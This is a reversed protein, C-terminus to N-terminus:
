QAPVPQAIRREVPVDALQPYRGRLDAVAADYEDRVAYSVAVKDLLWDTGSITQRLEIDGIYVITGAPIELPAFRLNSSPQPISSTTTESTRDPYGILLGTYTTPVVSMALLGPSEYQWQSPRQSMSGFVRADAELPSLDEGPDDAVRLQVVLTNTIPGFGPEGNTIPVIRALVVGRTVELQYDAPLQGAPTPPLWSTSPASTSSCGALLLALVLSAHRLVRRNSLTM